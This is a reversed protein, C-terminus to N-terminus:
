FGDDFVVKLASGNKQICKYVTKLIIKVRRDIAAFHPDLLIPSITDKAMATKLAEGLTVPGSNYTLLTQLTSYRFLCCQYVPALISLDDYRPKGFRCGFICKYKQLPFNCGVIPLTIDSASFDLLFIEM